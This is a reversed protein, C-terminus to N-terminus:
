CCGRSGGGQVKPGWVRRGTSRHKVLRPVWEGSAKDRLLHAQNRVCVARGGALRSDLEHEFKGNVRLLWCEECCLPELPGICRYFEM